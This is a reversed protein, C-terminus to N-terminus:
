NPNGEIRAKTEDTQRSRQLMSNADAAAKETTLLLTPRIFMLLETKTNSQTHRGFLWGLFPIEGLYPFQSGDLSKKSTQLGGLVTIEGDAATIFSTAQRRTIIPQRNGDITEFGGIDDASQDLEMQITGDRGILPKVKLELGIDQFTFSTRLGIGSSVGSFDSQTATVIPRAEGVLITAEKNHTTVVSPVSLVNVNSKSNDPRVLLDLSIQGQPVARNIIGDTVAFGAGSGAFGVVKDGEIALNFADIGRVVTKGLTVEAILVEIRVQPLVVDVQRILEKVLNIDDLTGSAVIANSREDAVITMSDSFQSQRDGQAALGASIAAAIPQQVQNQRENSDRMDTSTGFTSRRESQSRRRAADATGGGASSTTQTTGSIFQSLVSSVDTANAHFIQIVAISTSLDAQIDLKEILNDFFPVSAPDSVLIIQNTREDFNLSTSSTLLAQAFGEGEAGLPVPAGPQPQPQASGSRAANGATFASRTTEILSKVKEAVTGAQAYRLTYFKTVLNRPHDVEKLVYELRQLNSVTDTVLLTSTNQFPVVAGFGPSLFPQIQTQFTVTDLHELRFLKSVVRGSPPQDALSGIVLEPAETRVNGIPVVKIFRDGLPAIAIGNLSLLSEIALIAQQRSIPGRSDFTFTPTPLAQPRVVSRGTFMELLALVQALSDDRLQLKDIMQENDGTAVFGVMAPPEQAQLPFVVAAALLALCLRASSHKTTMARVPELFSKLPQSACARM